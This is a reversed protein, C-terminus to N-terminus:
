DPAPPPMEVVEGPSMAGVASSKAQGSFVGNFTTNPDIELTCEVYARVWYGSWAKLVREGGIDAVKVYQRTVPDYRWAYDMIWGAAKAEAISKTVGLYTVRMDKWPIGVDERPYAEYKIYVKTASSPLPKTLQISSDGRRYPQTSLGPQYYNEGMMAQDLYVGLVRGIVSAQIPIVRYQDIDKTAVRGPAVPAPPPGGPAPTGPQSARKWNFFINGIQNWGAKLAISSSKLKPLKTDVDLEPSGSLGTKLPYSQAAVKIL